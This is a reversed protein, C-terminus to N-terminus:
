IAWSKSDIVQFRSSFSTVFRIRNFSELCMRSGQAIFSTNSLKTSTKLAKERGELWDINMETKKFSVIFIGSGKERKVMQLNLINM